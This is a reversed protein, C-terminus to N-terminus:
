AAESGLHSRLRGAIKLWRKRASERSVGNAAGALEFVANRARDGTPDTIADFLDRDLQDECVVARLGLVEGLRLRDEAAQDWDFPDAIVAALTGGEEGRPADLSLPAAPLTRTRGGHFRRAERGGYAGQGNQIASRLWPAAYTSFRYGRSPDFRRVAHALGFVADQYADAKTYGAGDADPLHSGWRTVAWGCLGLNAEVMAAQPATLPTM